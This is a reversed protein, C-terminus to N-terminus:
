LMEELVFRKLSNEPFNKLLRKELDFFIEKNNEFDKKFIFSDLNPRFELGLYNAFGKGKEDDFFAFNDKFSGIGTYRKESLEKGSENVWNLGYYDKFWAYHNTFAGVNSYRKNTLVEGQENIWNKGVEDSFRSLGNEFNLPNTFFNKTPNEWFNGNKGFVLCNEIEKLRKDTIM